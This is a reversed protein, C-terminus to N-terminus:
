GRGSVMIKWVEEGLVKIAERAVTDQVQKDEGYHVCRPDCFVRQPLLDIFAIFASVSHNGVWAQLSKVAPVTSSVAGPTEISAFYCGEKTFAHQGRKIV